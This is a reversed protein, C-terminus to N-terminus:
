AVGLRQKGADTIRYGAIASRGQVKTHAYEILGRRKLALATRYEDRYRSKSPWIPGDLAVDALFLLQQVTLRVRQMVDGRWRLFRSADSVLGIKTM